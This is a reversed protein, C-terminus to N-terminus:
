STTVSILAASIAPELADLSVPAVVFGGRVGFRTVADVYAADEDAFDAVVADERFVVWRGQYLKLLEPLRARFRRSEELVREATPSM